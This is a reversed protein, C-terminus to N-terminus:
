KGVCFSEFIAGLLDEVDTVGIIGELAITADSLHTEAIEPPHGAALASQFEGIARDARRLGRAQRARTVIAPTRSRSLGGFGMEVLSDRLEGIGEGSETSVRIEDAGDEATGFEEPHLDSKTRLVVVGAGLAGAEDRLALEEDTWLRGAEICLLVLDAEALFRRAVEIGIREVAGPDGRVGATDVLRFPYGEITTDAEIADRTTGPEETVIARQSGLLHNFVSSKGANPAGALVALVGARLREGEPAHRLLEGIADRLARAAQEVRAPSVPGDDEEPFDIDYALLARLEILDSRLADIRRSLGGELQYVAARHYAPSTAEILDQTAEVQVLDLKGNLFARRTFEGPEAPRAGAAVAADLVLHPVLDGGHSSLEVTDQGTFSAPAPFFTVIARDIPSGAPDHVEVLTARRPELSTAGLVTAVSLAEPGSVRVLATGSRGPATSIAAITEDMADSM